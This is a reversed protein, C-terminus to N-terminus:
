RAGADASALTEVRTLWHHFHPCVARIRDIGIAVVALPGHLPKQYAAFVDRLRKSPATMPGDDIDEPTPHGAAIRAIAEIVGPDDDFMFPELKSRDAYVWAEFEHLALHPVFRRDAVAAAWAAEVHEVRSRPSGALRSHMGPFDKPLAYYDLVTTIVSAHGDHLLPQLDRQVQGYSSIGGKFSPGGAVRKTAVITPRELILGKDLLYPALCENVFREETQGEVLVLGRKM